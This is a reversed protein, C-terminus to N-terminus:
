RRVTLVAHEDVHVETLGISRLGAELLRVMDWQWQTSPVTTVSADSQRTGALYRFFRQVLRDALPEDQSSLTM